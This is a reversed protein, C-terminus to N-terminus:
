HSLGVLDAYARNNSVPQDSLKTTVNFSFLAEQIHTLDRDAPGKADASIQKFGLYRDVIFLRKNAVVTHVYDALVRMM